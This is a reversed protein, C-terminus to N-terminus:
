DKSPQNLVSIKRGQSKEMEDILRLVELFKDEAKSHTLDLHCMSEGDLGLATVVTSDKNVEFLIKVVKVEEKM